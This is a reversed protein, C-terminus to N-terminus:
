QGRWDRVARYARGVVKGAKTLSVPTWDGQVPLGLITEQWGVLGKDRLADLSPGCCEGWLSRDDDGLWELLDQEDQTLSPEKASM